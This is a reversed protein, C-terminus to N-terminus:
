NKVFSVGKLPKGDRPDLIKDSIKSLLSCFVVSLKESLESNVLEDVTEDTLIGNEKKVQYETGDILEAGSIGKVSYKIALKAGLMGSKIDGKVAEIMYSQVETKQEYTLPSVTVVVDDIKIKLEDTIRFIKM